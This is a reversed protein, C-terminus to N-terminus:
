VGNDKPKRLLLAIITVPVVKMASIAHVFVSDQLPTEPFETIPVDLQVPLLAHELKFPSVVIWEFDHLPLSLQSLIDPIIM